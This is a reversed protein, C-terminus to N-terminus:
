NFEFQYLLDLAQDVGQVAEVYLKPMLRYRLTLTALSDFIGVGYKVQLGPLVYGSVQVQQSNGVGSTDLALDSVGFTEGIKGLLQGSQAVGLGVLASTLANGDGEAGLGQGRLLYSLAEQQSKVPDSFIEIKPEEALGTVRIGATVDDKTADPNRIAELNVYPNSAVGSFQLEGKRVILDQGYAHFRGTPINIQGNIGLGSKGQAVKLDGNLSANLGFASLRVDKGVHIILDSNIHMASAKQEIPRRHSDLMIEDSSVGTASEPVEQVTIRAWPLAVNGGLTLQNPTAEFRLDPSVDLRVMPPVTVRIHEGNAMLNARWQKPQRWDASGNLALHGQNTKILGKLASSMGNFRLDLTAGTLEVPLLSSNLLVNHLGTQGYVQPKQLNGALRWQSNLMGGIREDGSFIPQLLDLSFQRININGSLKRRTAPDQIAINGELRGNNAIKILWNLQARDKNLGATMKLTDFVVPVTKGQVKQAISVGLGNLRAQGQPLKGDDTWSLSVDGNFRGKVQTEDPLLPALMALDFRKLLVRGKGSRGVIFPETICLDAQKHSWCHNGITLSTMANQYDLKLPRNLRWAGIPTDFHTNNLDGQWRQQQRDFHGTLSLEGTVPEGKTVLKLTHAQENGKAQLDLKNIILGPQSLSNIRLGVTGAIGEKDAVDAKLVFTQLKLDQFRLGRGQISAQLSPHLLTGRAKVMGKIVGGLGPLANDLAPADIAADLNIQSDLKGNLTLKNNGLSFLLSSISWQNYSNGQVKGRIQLPKKKVVGEIAITPIQLQWSDGYVSGRTTIEGHIHAPWDPYFEATSIGKLRLRTRFSIARTWDVVAALNAQGKLSDIQLDDLLIGDNNGVARLALKTEPVAQGHIHSVIDLHYHSAKGGATLLLNRVAIEPQGTLPWNLANSQLKLKFPLGILAPQVEADLTSTVPGSLNLALNLQQKANGKLSLKLKEGQLPKVNLAANLILDIPWNGALDATGTLNLLGEKANIKVQEIEIHNNIAHAQVNVKNITINQRGILTLNRGEIGQLTIDLPLTYEPLALLPSAFLQSLKEAMSPQQAWKAKAEAIAQQRQEASQTQGLNDWETLIKKGAQKTKVVASSSPLPLNILLDNIQTPMLQLHRGQWDLGTAFHGLNIQQKDIQVSLNDLVLQKIRMPVPSTIAQIQAADESKATSPPLKSSDVLVNLNSLAISDICVALKRLCATDLSLHLTGANVEIGPIRYSVGRLNLNDWGGEVQQIALSPVFRSASKILLHLGATSGVLYGMGILLLLVLALVSVLIKKWLIM